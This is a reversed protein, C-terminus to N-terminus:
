LETLWLQTKQKKENDDNIEVFGVKFYVPDRNEVEGNVINDTLPPFTVTASVVVRYCGIHASIQVNIAHGQVIFVNREIDIAASHARMFHLGMMGIINAIVVISSCQLKEFEFYAVTKGMVPLSEGNAIGIDRQSPSLSVNSM